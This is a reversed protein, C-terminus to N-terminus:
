SIAPFEDVHHKLKKRRDRRFMLFMFTVLALVTASGLIRIVNMILLGYKGTTPDYHFCYLLVQDVPTGIKGASAEVLGLRLDRASYEVGYLYRAIKGKPTLIMIGSAHAYQQSKPDWVYRFGVSGALAQIAPEEGTLFHWGDAAGPRGYRRVYEKKKAAALPPKERPDFSVTVVEFHEHVNMTTARLSRVLGNLIMTCLMPCDYYVLSLVVPKKDFYEALRVERGAEDRFVLDLPVQENLRQDIGVKRLPEPLEGQAGASGGALSILICLVTLWRFM